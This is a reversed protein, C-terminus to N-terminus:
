LFRKDGDELNACTERFQQCWDVLSCPMANWLMTVKNNVAM